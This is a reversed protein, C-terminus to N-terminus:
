DVHIARHRADRVVAGADTSATDSEPDGVAITNSSSPAHSNADAHTHFVGDADAYRGVIDGRANIGNALTQTANPFDIKVFRYDAAFLLSSVALGLLTLKIVLKM